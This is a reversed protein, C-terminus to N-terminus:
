PFFYDHDEVPSDIADAGRVLYSRTTGNRFPWANSFIRPKKQIINSVVSCSICM